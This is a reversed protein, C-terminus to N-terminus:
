SHHTALITNGPVEPHKDTTSQSFGSQETNNYFLHDDDEKPLHVLHDNTM